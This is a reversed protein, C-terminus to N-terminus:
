ARDIGDAWSWGGMPGIERRYCWARVIGDAKVGVGWNEPWVSLM